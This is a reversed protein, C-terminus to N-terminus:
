GTELSEEHPADRLGHRAEALNGHHDHLLKLSQDTPRDKGIGSAKQELPRLRNKEFDIVGLSGQGM